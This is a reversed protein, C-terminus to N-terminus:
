SPNNQWDPSQFPNATRSPVATPDFPTPIGYAYFNPNGTTAPDTKTPEKSGLAAFTNVANFMNQSGQKSAQGYAQQKQMYEALNQRTNMNRQNTIGQGMQDAYRINSRHLQADQAAFTNLAGVNGYNIGARIAGALTNGGQAFSRSYSANNQRALNQMFSSKEDQTYGSNALGQARDYASQQEPTVDYGAPKNRALENLAQDSKHKQFMGGLFQVGTAIGLGLLPSLM